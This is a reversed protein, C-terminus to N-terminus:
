DDFVIRPSQAPKPPTSQARDRRFLPEQSAARPEARGPAAGMPPYLPTQGKPAPGKKPPPAAAQAPSAAPRPPPAARGARASASAPSTPPLAMSVAPPATPELPPATPLPPTSAVAAVSAMGPSPSLAQGASRSKACSGYFLVAGVFLLLGAAPATWLWLPLGARSARAVAPAVAAPAAAAPAGATAPAHAFARSSPAASLLVTPRTSLGARLNTDLVARTQELCARVHASAETALARQVAEISGANGARELSRAAARRVLPHPDHLAAELERLGLPDSGDALSACRQARGRAAEDLPPWSRLEAYTTHEGWRAQPHMAARELAPPMPALPAPGGPMRETRFSARFSRAVSQDCIKPIPETGHRASSFPLAPPPPARDATPMPATAFQGSAFPLTPSGAALCKAVSPTPTTRTHGGATPRETPEQPATRAHPGAPEPDGEGEGEGEGGSEGDDEDARRANREEIVRRLAENLVDTFAEMSEWRKKPDKELARQIPLWAHEPSGPYLETLSTPTAYLHWRAYDAGTPQTPHDSGFPLQGAIMEYLMVGLSYIDSAATIPKGSVQEPSMYAATGFAHRDQTTRQNYKPVKVCGLDLLKLSCRQHPLQKLFINDPKIDRHVIGLDHLSQTADGIEIAFSLAEGTTIRVVKNMVQRLNKGVLLEMVLYFGAKPDRGAHFIEVINPHRAEAHARAETEFRLVVDAQHQYRWSLVKLAVERRMSEHRARYVEAMGGCAIFELIVFDQGVRQGVECVLNAGGSEPGPASTPEAEGSALPGSVARAGTGSVRADEEEDERATAAQTELDM